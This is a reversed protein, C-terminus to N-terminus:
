AAQVMKVHKVAAGIVPKVELKLLTKCVDPELRSCPAWVIMVCESCDVFPIINSIVPVSNRHAV